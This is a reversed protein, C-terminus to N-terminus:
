SSNPRKNEQNKYKKFLYEPITQIAFLFIIAVITFFPNFIPPTVEGNWMWRDVMIYGFILGFILSVLAIRIQKFPGIHDKM